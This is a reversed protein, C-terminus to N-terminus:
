FWGSFYVLYFFTLGLRCELNTEALNALQILLKALSDSLPPFTNTELVILSVSDPLRSGMSEQLKHQIIEIASALM